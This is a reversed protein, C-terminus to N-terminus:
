VKRFIDVVDVEKVVNVDVVEDHLCFERLMIIFHYGISIIFFYLVKRWHQTYKNSLGM